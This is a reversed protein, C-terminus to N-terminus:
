SFAPPRDPVSPISPPQSQEIHSPRTNILSRSFLTRTQPRKEAVEPPRIGPGRGTRSRVCVPRISPGGARQEAASETLSVLFPFARHEIVFRLEPHKLGATLRALNEPWHVIEAKARRIPLMIFGGETLIEELDEIRSFGISIEAYIEPNMYLHHAAGDSGLKEESWIGWKPDDLFVDLLINSDVLIGNM